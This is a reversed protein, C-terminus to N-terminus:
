HSYVSKTERKSVLSTRGSGLESEPINVSSITSGGNKLTLVNWILTAPIPILTTLTTRSKYNNFKKSFYNQGKLSNKLM